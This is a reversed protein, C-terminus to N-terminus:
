LEPVTGGALWAAGERYVSARGGYFMFARLWLSRRLLKRAREAQAPGRHKAFFRLHSRLLETFMRGGHSAGGVHTVEASPTFWVEWGAAHLRYALDVEENFLFFDEDLGGIEALAEKRLLM